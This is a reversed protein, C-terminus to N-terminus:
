RPLTGRAPGSGFADGTVKWQGYTEGEFDAILIEEASFAKFSFLVFIMIFPFYKRM